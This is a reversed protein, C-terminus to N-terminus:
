YSIGGSSHNLPKLSVLDGPTNYLKSRSMLLIDESRKVIDGDPYTDISILCGYSYMETGQLSLLPAPQLESVMEITSFLVPMDAIDPVPTEIQHVIEFTPPPAAFCVAFGLTLILSFIFNKM